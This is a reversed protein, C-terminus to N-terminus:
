FSINLTCNYIHWIFRKIMEFLLVLHIFSFWLATDWKQEKIRPSKQNFGPLMFARDDVKIKLHAPERWNRSMTQLSIFYYSQLKCFNEIIQNMARRVESIWPIFAAVRTFVTPKKQTNCGRGDVFSTVGEVYWKGDRGKCNLPGGSDGQFSSQLYQLFVSTSKNNISLAGWMAHQSAGAEQVSWPWRWQAAGGTAREAPTTIWWLFYPRSFRLPGLVM